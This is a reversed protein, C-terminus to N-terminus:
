SAKEIMWGPAGEAGLEFRPPMRMEQHSGVAEKPGGAHCWPRHRDALPQACIPGQSFRESLRLRFRFNPKLPPRISNRGLTSGILPLSSLAQLLSVAQPMKAADMPTSALNAAM